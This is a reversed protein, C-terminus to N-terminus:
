FKVQGSENSDGYSYSITFHPLRIPSKMRVCMLKSNKRWHDYEVKIIEHLLINEYEEILFM